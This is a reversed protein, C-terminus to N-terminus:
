VPNGDLYHDILAILTTEIEEPDPMLFFILELDGGGLFNKVVTGDSLTERIFQIQYKALVSSAHM